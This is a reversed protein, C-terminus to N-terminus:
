SDLALKAISKGKYLEYWLAWVGIALLVVGIGVTGPNKKTYEIVIEFLGAYRKEYAAKISNKTIRGSADRLAPNALEVKPTAFPVNWDTEKIGAPYFVALYLDVFGDFKKIGLRKKWLNYYAEVYDLQQLRTMKQLADTTTGLEKAAATGFQILGTYGLSNRISASLGSELDMIAMLHNFPVGLRSAIAEVKAKFASREGAPIKNILGSVEIAM